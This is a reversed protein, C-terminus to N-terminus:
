FLSIQKQGLILKEGVSNVTKANAQGTKNKM